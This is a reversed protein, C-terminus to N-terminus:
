SYRELMILLKCVGELSSRRNACTVYWVFGLALFNGSNFAKMSCRDSARNTGSPRFKSVLGCEVM